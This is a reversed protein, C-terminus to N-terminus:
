HLPTHRYTHTHKLNGRKLHTLSTHAYTHTHTHTHMPTRTHTHLHAYTHTYTHTHTPTHTKTHIHTRVSTGVQLMCSMYENNGLPSHAMAEVNSSIFKNLAETLNKSRYPHIIVSVRMSAYM